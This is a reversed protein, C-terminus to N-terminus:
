VDRCYDVRMAKNYCQSHPKDACEDNLRTSCCGGPNNASGWFSLYSRVEGPVNAKPWNMASGGLHQVSSDDNSSAVYDPVRWNVSDPSWQHLNIAQLMDCVSYSGNVPKFYDVVSGVTVRIMTASNPLGGGQCLSAWYGENALTNGMVTTLGSCRSCTSVVFPLEWQNEQESQHAACCGGKQGLSSGWFSLYARHDGEVSTQPWGQASGGMGAKLHYAPERWNTGDASWLHKNSSTLMECWNSTEIPRFYDTVDGMRVVLASVESTDSSAFAHCRSAWFSKKTNESGSISALDKANYCRGADISPNERAGSVGVTALAREKGAKQMSRGGRSSRGGGSSRGLEAATFNVEAVSGDHGNVEIFSTGSNKADLQERRMITKLKERRSRFAKMIGASLDEGIGQHQLDVVNKVSNQGPLLSDKKATAFAACLVAILCSPFFVHQM